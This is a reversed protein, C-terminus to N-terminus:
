HSFHLWSKQICLIVIKDDELILNHIRFSTDVYM